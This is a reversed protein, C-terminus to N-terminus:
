LERKRLILWGGVLFCATYISYYLWAMLVAYWTISRGAALAAAIGFRDLDPFLHMILQLFRQMPLSYNEYVLADPIIWLLSGAFYLTLGALLAIGLNSVSAVLLTWSALLGAVALVVLGGRLLNTVFSGGPQALFLTNDKSLVLQADSQLRTLQVVCTGDPGIASAPLRLHMFDQGFDARSRDRHSLVVQGPAIATGDTSKGYPSTAELDLLTAQGGPTQSAAISALCESVQDAGGIQVRLLLQYGEPNPALNEFTWRLSDGAPGSLTTRDAKERIDMTEGLASIGVWKTPM